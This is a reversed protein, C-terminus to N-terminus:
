DGNREGWRHNRRRAAVAAEYAPRLSAIEAQVEALLADVDGIDKRAVVLGPPLAYGMRGNTVPIREPFDELVPGAPQDLLKFAARLVKLQFAPDNPKGLPRGMPFDLFMARPPKITAIHERVFVLWCRRLGPLNLIIHM